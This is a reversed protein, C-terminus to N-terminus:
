RGAPVRIKHHFGLVHIQLFYCYTVRLKQSNKRFDLLCQELDLFDSGTTRNLQLQALQSTRWPMDKILTEFDVGGCDWSALLRLGV